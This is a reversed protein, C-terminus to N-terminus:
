KAADFTSHYLYFYFVTFMFILCWENVLLSHHFAVNDWLFENLADLFKFLRETNYPGITLYPAGRVQCELLPRFRHM